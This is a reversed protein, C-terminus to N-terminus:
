RKFVAVPLINESNYKFQFKLDEFKIEDFSMKTLAHETCVTCYNHNRKGISIMESCSVLSGTTAYQALSAARCFPKFISLFLLSDVATSIGSISQSSFSFFTLFNSKAKIM